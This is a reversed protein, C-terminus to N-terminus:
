EGERNQRNLDGLWASSETPDWTLNSSFWSCLNIPYKLPPVKTRSRPKKNNGAGSVAAPPCGDAGGVGVNQSREENTQAPLPEEHMPSLHHEKVPLPPPRHLAQRSLFYLQNIPCLSGQDFVWGSIWKIFPFRKSLFTCESKFIFYFFMVQLFTWCVKICSM